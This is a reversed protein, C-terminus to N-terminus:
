SPEDNEGLIKMRSITSPRNGVCTSRLSPQALGYRVILNDLQGGCADRSRHDAASEPMGAQWCAFPRLGADTRSSIPGWTWGGDNSYAMPRAGSAQPRQAGPRLPAKQSLASVPVQSKARVRGASAARLRRSGM